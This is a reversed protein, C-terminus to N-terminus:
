QGGAEGKLEFDVQGPREALRNVSLGSFVQGGLINQDRLLQLYAPVLETRLASGAMSLDGPAQGIRVRTLWVGSLPHRALGELSKLLVANRESNPLDASSLSQNLGRLQRELRVIKEELLVDKVPVPYQAELEVLKAAAADRKSSILRVRQETGATLWYSGLSLLAALVVVALLILLAQRSRLPQPKDFLVEQLLNIQQM